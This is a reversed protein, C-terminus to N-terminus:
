GLQTKESAEDELIGGLTDDIFLHIVGFQQLGGRAAQHRDGVCCATFRLLRIRGFFCM